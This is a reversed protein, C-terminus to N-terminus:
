ALLPFKRKEWFGWLVFCTHISRICYQFYQDPNLVSHFCYISQVLVLKTLFENHNLLWQVPFDLQRKIIMLKSKSKYFIVVVNKTMFYLCARFTTTTNNTSILFKPEWNEDNFSEWGRRIFEILDMLLNMFRLRIYSSAKLRFRKHMAMAFSKLLNSLNERKGGCLTKSFKLKWFAAFEIEPRTQYFILNLHKSNRVNYNQKLIISKMSTRILNGIWVDVGNISTAM